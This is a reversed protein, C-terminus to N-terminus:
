IKVEKRLSVQVLRLIDHHVLALAEHLLREMTAVQSCASEAENEV